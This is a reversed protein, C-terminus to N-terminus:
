RKEIIEYSANTIDQLEVWRDFYDLYEDKISIRFYGEKTEFKKYFDKYSKLIRNYKNVYNKALSTDETAFIMIRRPNYKGYYYYVIYIKNKKM